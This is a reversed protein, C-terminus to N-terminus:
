LRCELGCLPGPDARCRQPTHQPPTPKITPMSTAATPMISGCSTGARPGTWLLFRPWPMPSDSLDGMRGYLAERALQAHISNDYDPFGLVEVAIGQQRLLKALATVATNKGAGDIGEIAIIM